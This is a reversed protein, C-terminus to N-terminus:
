QFSTCKLNACIKKERREAAHQMIGMSAFVKMQLLIMLIEEVCNVGTLEM